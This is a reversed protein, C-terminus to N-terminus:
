IVPLLRLTNLVLRHLCLCPIICTHDQRLVPPHTLKHEEKLKAQSSNWAQCMVLLAPLSAALSGLGVILPLLEVHGVSPCMQGGLEM